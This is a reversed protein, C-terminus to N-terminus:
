RQLANKSHHHPLLQHASSAANINVVQNDNDVMDFSNQALENNLLRRNESSSRAKNSRSRLRKSSGSYTRQGSSKSNSKSKNSNQKRQQKTSRGRQYAQAQLIKNNQQLLNKTQSLKQKSYKQSRKINTDIQKHSVLKKIKSTMHHQQQGQPVSAQVSLNHHKNGTLRKQSVKNLARSDAQTVPNHEVSQGHTFNSQHNNVSLRKRAQSHKLRSQGSNKANSSFNVINEKPESARNQQYRTQYKQYRGRSSSESRPRSPEQQQDLLEKAVLTKQPNNATAPTNQRRRGRKMNVSSHRTANTM